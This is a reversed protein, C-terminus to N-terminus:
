RKLDFPDFIWRLSMYGDVLYISQSSYINCLRNDFTTKGSCELTEEAGSSAAKQSCNLTLGYRCTVQSFKLVLLLLDLSKKGEKNGPIDTPLRLQPRQPTVIVDVRIRQDVHHVGGVRVADFLSSILEEVDELVGVHALAM